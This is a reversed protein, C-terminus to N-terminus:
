EDNEEELSKITVIEVDPFFKLMKKYSNNQELQQFKKKDKQLKIENVTQSGKKKSLTIIWREGTWELM